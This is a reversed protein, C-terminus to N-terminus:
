MFLVTFGPNEAAERCIERRELGAARGALAAKEVKQAAAQFLLEEM